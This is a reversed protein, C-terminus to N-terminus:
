ISLADQGNFPIKLYKYGAPTVIRGKPTRALFGVRLLYPECIEEINDKEENISAALSNIGVPGGNFKEIITTLIKRDDLELGLEDIELLEMSEKASGIDIQSKNQVESFDRARKLIRNAVRPTGRSIKALFEVAEKSIKVNLLKASREIITEIEQDQYFDLKFAAGFRSRLPNSLMGPRTTAAVLTFPPLDIQFARASPGKGVIINLIRNEMAPYLIEEVMKNLRHAEDIFLIDNEKINTLISALDAIKEIAPGTTTKIESQMESAILYALTTKGLGAQGYFLLHDCVESRKKAAEIIIKLNRKLNEQGVYEDWKKPRLALDILNEAGGFKSSSM